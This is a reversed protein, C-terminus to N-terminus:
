REEGKGRASIWTKRTTPRVDEVASQVAMQPDGGGDDGGEADGRRMRHRTCWRAMPLDGSRWRWRQGFRVAAEIRAPPLWRMGLHGFRACRTGWMYTRRKWEEGGVAGGNM